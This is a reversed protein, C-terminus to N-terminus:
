DVYIPFETPNYIRGIVSNELCGNESLLDQLDQTKDKSVSILLGGSTQADSLLYQQEDSINNSNNVYSSAYDLNRKTGGPIFGKQALEYVGEILPIANYDLTASVKSGQCMELLHGLLGYGTVDTCANVGISNMAEAAGKNLHTM